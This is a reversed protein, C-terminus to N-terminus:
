DIAIYDFACNSGASGANTSAISFGTSSRNVYFNLGGCSSGVPTIVIHPTDNFANVFTIYALVGAVPSSGFNLNVTGATDNGSISVTGGGQMGPGPSVSPTSGGADIHRNIVLNQNITFQDVSISPAYIAGSFSAGGGVTLNSQISMTGQVAANGAVSINNGVQLDELTSTGSATMGTLSINEGVRLTGAVDLDNRALIRGNFIANSAITLTDKADGVTVNNNKLKQLDEATLTQGEINNQDTNKSSRYSAFTAIGALLLILIFLLIYINVKKIYTEIKKFFSQKSQNPPQVQANVPQATEVAPTPDAQQTQSVTPAPSASPEASNTSSLTEENELTNEGTELPEQNDDNM